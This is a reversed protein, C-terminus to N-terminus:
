EYANEDFREMRKWCGAGACQGQQHKPCASKRTDTRELTRCPATTMQARLPDEKMRLCHGTWRLRKERVLEDAHPSAAVGFVETRSPHDEVPCRYIFGEVADTNDKRMPWCEANYLLM